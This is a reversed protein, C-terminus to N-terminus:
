ERGARHDAALATEHVEGDPTTADFTEDIHLWSSGQLDPDLCNLVARWDLNLSCNDPPTSVPLEAKLKLHNSRCFPGVKLLNHFLDLPLRVLQRLLLSCGARLAQRKGRLGDTTNEHTRM